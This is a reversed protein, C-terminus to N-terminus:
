TLYADNYVAPYNLEVTTVNTADASRSWAGEIWDGTVGADDARGPTADIYLPKDIDVDDTSAIINKGYIQVWGYDTVADLAAMMIGVRGIGGATLLSCIHVEDFSVWVGAAGSTCGALYIFESGDVDRARTGLQHKATTDVVSTDGSFIETFGTLDGM